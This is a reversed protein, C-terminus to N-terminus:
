KEGMQLQPDRYRSVVSLPYFHLYILKAPYPNGFHCIFAKVRLHRYLVKYLYNM